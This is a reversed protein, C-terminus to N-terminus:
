KKGYIEESLIIYMAHSWGLANVWLPKGDVRSIQEALFYNESCHNTVWDFYEKAKIYDTDIKNKKYSKIYYMSVWLTAIVWPNTDMYHDFEFRYIGGIPSTLYEEIKNVTKVIKEDNVDFIEFPWVLSLTSVDVMDRNDSIKFYGKQENWFVDLINNYIKDMKIKILTVLKANQINEVYLKFAYYISALTYIHKGENMEWLDYCTIHLNTDTDLVRLLYEIAKDISPQLREIFENDKNLIYQKIMGIVVSSTEDLQLGWIPALNGDTYYRQEWMGNENQTIQCFKNYFFESINPLGCKNLGETIYVSDRPWCYSYRGCKTFGEDVECSAIMGGTKDNTYLLLTLVSRIYIQKEKENQFNIVNIKNIINEWYKKTDDYILKEDIQRITKIINKTLFMNDRFFMYINLEMNNFMYTIVSDNSMGVYDKQNFQLTDFVQKSGNIQYNCIKSDSFTTFYSDKSYQILADLEENYWSSIYDNSTTILKSYILLKINEVNYTTKDIKYNRVMINNNIDVYDKQLISIDNNYIRTNLINTNEEYFQEHNFTNEDNLLFVKSDLILAVNHEDIHQKYDINPAFFRLIDGNKNLSVLINSNGIIANNFYKSM